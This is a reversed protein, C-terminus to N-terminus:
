ALRNDSHMTLQLIAMFVGTRNGSRKKRELIYKIQKISIEALPSESCKLDSGYYEEPM